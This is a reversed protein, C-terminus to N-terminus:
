YLVKSLRLCSSVLASFSNSRGIVMYASRISTSLSRLCMAITYSRYSVCLIALSSHDPVSHALRLMWCSVSPMSSNALLSLFNGLSTFARPTHWTRSSLIISNLFEMGNNASRLFSASLSLCQCLSISIVPLFKSMFGSVNVRSFRNAM